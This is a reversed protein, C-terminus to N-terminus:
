LGLHIFLGVALIGIFVAGLLIPISPMLMAEVRRALMAVFWLVCLGVFIFGLLQGLEGVARSNELTGIDALNM